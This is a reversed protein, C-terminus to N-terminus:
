PAMHVASQQPIIFIYWVDPLFASTCLFFGLLWTCLLLSEMMKKGTDSEYDDDTICCDNDEPALTSALLYAPSGSM